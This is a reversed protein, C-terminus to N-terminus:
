RCEVDDDEPLMYKDIMTYEVLMEAIEEQQHDPISSCRAAEILEVITSM